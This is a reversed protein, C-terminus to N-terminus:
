AGKEPAFLPVWLDEVHEFRVAVAMDFMVDEPDCDVINTVLRVDDQEAIRVLALVYREPLGPMWQKHNITFTEIFGRGSVPQYHTARGECKPCFGTPPHIYYHCADCQEILLKDEAGGTWFPRTDDTIDPLPRALSM